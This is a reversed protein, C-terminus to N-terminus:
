VPGKPAQARQLLAQVMAQFNGQPQLQTTALGPAAQSFGGIPPRPGATPTGPMPRVPPRGSPDVPQM